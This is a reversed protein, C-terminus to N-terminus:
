LSVAKLLASVVGPTLLGSLGGILATAIIGIQTWPIGGPPSTSPRDELRWLRAEHDELRWALLAPDHKVHPPLHEFQRPSRHNPM